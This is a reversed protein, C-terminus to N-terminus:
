YAGVKDLLKALTDTDVPKLLHHDFGAASTQMRDNEQGYGTIAILVSKATESQARLRQALENGDMGPLGIDLLCVQPKTKKARELALHSAHEVLVKHGSAKLLMALMTAADVNDDVVLIRLSRKQTQEHTIADSARPNDREEKVSVRPLSITFKSGKGIGDSECRVTGHHLEVLRKALALGLGLGGSSRDSPREAQAFLDFACAVLEPKMGIGTDAITIFVHSNDAETRLEISGDEGTYKAANSLINVLVQVLRKSDGLVITRDPTINLVVHHRRSRILPAVQEMADAVIHSVDVFENDLKILGQTVRSVDVLEDVLSTIHKVQRGIIQSTQRVRAEDLKVLQLLEAAAAIPALPNRLEHALMALFEDKRRDADQLKAQTLKRESIDTFLLGVRRSDPGGLRTASVDFWREMTRSEHEFRVPEGTLAVRGYTEIFHEEVGPVLEKATKGVPDQLGTHRVFAQNIELFRYDVARGAADFLPEVVCFAQDLAQVLGYYSSKLAERHLHEATVDNCIVLVGRVGSDDEIPSYGYTWWVNEKKGHRTLPVLADNHWTAGQGSMVFEIEPGIVHWIENWCIKGQQGIASPHREPGLTERYADNYFQLLDAGWWIFMPHHSTLLLRLSTKLAAPWTAPSGLTTTSWDHARILAGLEGGGSLFDFATPTTHVNTLTM